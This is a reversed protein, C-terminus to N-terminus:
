DVPLSVFKVKTEPYSVEIQINNEHDQWQKHQVSTEIISKVPVESLYFVGGEEQNTVSDKSSTLIAKIAQSQPTTNLNQSLNVQNATPAVESGTHRLAFSIIFLAAAVSILISTVDKLKQFPIIKNDKEDEIKRFGEYIREDMSAPPEALQTSLGQLGSEIREDLRISAESLSQELIMSELEEFQTESCLNEIKLDLEASPSKLEQQLLMDEIDLDEISLSESLRNDLNISPQKLEQKLILEEIELEEVSLSEELRNELSSSPTNLMLKSITDELDSFDETLGEEIRTDLAESPSKLSLKSITDELSLFENNLTEDLRHDLSSSPSALPLKSITDELSLFESSLTEHVRADLSSSPTRWSLSRIEKEFINDIESM